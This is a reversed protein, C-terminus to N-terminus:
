FDTLAYELMQELTMARGKEWATTFAADGSAACVATTRVDHKNQDAPSLTYGFTTRLVDAAGYLQAARESEGQSHALWALFELSSFVVPKDDLEWAAKLSESLCAHAETYEELLCLVDGLRWAAHGVRQGFELDIARAEALYVRAKFTM